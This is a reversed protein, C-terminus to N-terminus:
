RSSRREARRVLAWVELFPAVPRVAGNERSRCRTPCSRARSRAATTTSRSADRGPRLARYGLPREPDVVADYNDMPTPASGFRAIALPPLIRLEHIM